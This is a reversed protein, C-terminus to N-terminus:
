TSGCWRTKYELHSVFESFVADVIHKALHHNKVMGKVNLIEVEFIFSWSYNTASTAAVGARSM